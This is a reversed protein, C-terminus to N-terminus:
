RSEPIIAALPDCSTPGHLRCVGFLLDRERQILGLKARGDLFHASLHPM